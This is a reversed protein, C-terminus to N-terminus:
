PNQQPRLLVKTESSPLISKSRVKPLVQELTEALLRNRLLERQEGTEQLLAVFAAAEGEAQAILNEAYADAETEIRYSEAEVMPNQEAEYARAREVMTRSEMQANVVQEFAPLVHKPPTLESIEFASLEVGLQLEDARAQANALTQKRLEDIGGPLVADVKMRALAATLARYAVGQLIQAPERTNRFFAHADRVRYRLAFRGQLINTDATLTYGHRVPHLTADGNRQVSEPPLAQWDELAIEQVTQTPIRVVEDFPEPLALLLGPGHSMPLLKGFRLLLGTEGPQIVTIGSTLYVALLVLLGWRLLRVSGKLSELLAEASVARKRRRETVPRHLHM